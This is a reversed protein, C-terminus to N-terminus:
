LFQLTVHTHFANLKRVKDKAHVNAGLDVLFEVLNKHGKRCASLLPTLGEGDNTELENRANTEELLYKVVHRHDNEAAATLLDVGDVQANEKELNLKETVIRLIGLKICIFNVCIM